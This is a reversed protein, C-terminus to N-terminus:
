QVLEGLGIFYGAKSHGTCMTYVAVGATWIDWWSGATVQNGVMDVLIVAPPEGLHRTDALNISTRLDQTAFHRLHASGTSLSRTTDKQCARYYIHECLLSISVGVGLNGEQFSIRLM